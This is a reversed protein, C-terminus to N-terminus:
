SGSEDGESTQEGELAPLFDEAGGVVAAVDDWGGGGDGATGGRLGKAPLGHEIKEGVHDEAAEDDEVEEDTDDNGIQIRHSLLSLFGCFLM